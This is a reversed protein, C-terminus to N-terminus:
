HASAKPQTISSADLRNFIEDVHLLPESKPSLKVQLGTHTWPQLYTPLHRLLYTVFKHLALILIRGRRKWAPHQLLHRFRAKNKTNIKHQRVNTKIPSHRKHQTQKQKEM